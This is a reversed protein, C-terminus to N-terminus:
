CAAINVFFFFLFVFFSVDIAIAHHRKVIEVNSYMFRPHANQPNMKSEAKSLKKKKKKEVKIEEFGRKMKPYSFCFALASGIARIPSIVLRVAM